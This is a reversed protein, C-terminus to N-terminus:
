SLPNKDNFKYLYIWILLCLISLIFLIILLFAHYSLFKIPPNQPNTAFSNSAMNSHVLHPETKEHGIYMIIQRRLNKRAFLIRSNDNDM